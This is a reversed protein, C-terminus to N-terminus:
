RWGGNVVHVVTRVGAEIATGAVVVGGVPGQRAEDVGRAHAWLDTELDGVRTAATRTRAGCGVLWNRFADAATGTWTPIDCGDITRAASFLDDELTAMARAQRRIDETDFM